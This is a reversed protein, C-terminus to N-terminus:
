AYLPGLVICFFFQRELIGPNLNHLSCSLQGFGSADCRSDGRLSKFWMDCGYGTRAQCFFVTQNHAIRAQLVDLVVFAREQQYTSSYEARHTKDAAVPRKLEGRQSPETHTRVPSDVHFREASRHGGKQGHATACGHRVGM